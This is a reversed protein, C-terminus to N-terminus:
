IKKILRAPVGGYVGESIEGRRVVAGAAIVSRRGITAGALVRVGAGIWVDPGISVAGMVLAQDKIAQSADDFSHEFSLISSAHAISVDDGISIDGVADFYCNGHITVNNGLSLQQWNRIDVHRGIMVNAGCARCLRRAWMYRIGMGAYGPIWDVLWWTAAVFGAPLIRLVSVGANLVPQVRKFM